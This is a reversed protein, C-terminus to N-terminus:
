PAMLLREADASITASTVGEPVYFARTRVDRFANVVACVPVDLTSAIHPVRAGQRRMEFALLGQVDTLRYTM